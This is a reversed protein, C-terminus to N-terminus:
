LARLLVNSNKYCYTLTCENINLTNLDRCSYKLKALNQFPFSVDALIWIFSNRQVLKLIFWWNYNNKCFNGILNNCLNQLKCCHLFFIKIKLLAYLLYRNCYHIHFNENTITWLFTTFLAYRLKWNFLHICFHWNYYHMLFNLALM